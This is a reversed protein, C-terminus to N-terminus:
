VLKKPKGALFAKLYFPEFYALDEFAQKQFKDYAAAGFHRASPQVEELFHLDPHDLVKLSKSAGDGFLYIPQKRFDSHFFDPKLELASIAQLAELDYNYIATYVEMRRADIMPCFLANQDRILAKAGMSMGCLSDIAILPLQLAYCIGKAFSVGIRLGTYSGPGKSVMVAHLDEFALEATQMVEHAFVALKEAHSYSGGKEKFSLLEDNKFLAVSCVKTATEIALIYSM